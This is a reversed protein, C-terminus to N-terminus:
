KAVGGTFIYSLVPSERLISLSIFLNATGNFPNKSLTGNAIPQNLLLVAVDTSSQVRQARLDFLQSSWHRLRLNRM